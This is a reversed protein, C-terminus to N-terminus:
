LEDRVIFVPLPPCNPRNSFSAEIVTYRSSDIGMVYELVAEKEEFGTDKGYYIVVSMIGDKKLLKLGKGIAAISSNKNTHVSHDGGPLWGLNFTIASVSAEDAYRDINEHSELHLEASLGREALLRSTSDLAEKQVDFAIVKGSEGVLSALFATDYGRGATADICIDGASIRESLIHRVIDLAGFTRSM